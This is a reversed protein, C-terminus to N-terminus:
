CFAPLLTKMCLDERLPVEWMSLSNENDVSAVRLLYRDGKSVDEDKMPVKKFVSGAVSTIVSTSSHGVQSIPCAGITGLRDQDFDDRNLVTVKGASRGFPTENIHCQAQVVLFGGSGSIVAASKHPLTLSLPNQDLHLM